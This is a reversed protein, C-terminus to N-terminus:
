CIALDAYLVGPLSANENTRPGDFLLPSFFLDQQDYQILHASLVGYYRWEKEKYQGTHRDIM